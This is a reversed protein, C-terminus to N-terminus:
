DGKFGGDGWISGETRGRKVITLVPPQDREWTGRGRQRLGRRQSRGRKRGKEGAHIDAEDM